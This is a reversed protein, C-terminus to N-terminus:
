DGEMETLGGAAKEGEPTFTIVCRNEDVTFHVGETLQVGGVMFQFNEGIRNHPGGVGFSATVEMGNKLRM